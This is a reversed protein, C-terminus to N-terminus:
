DRADGKVAENGKPSSSCSRGVPQEPSEEADTTKGAHIEAGPGLLMDGLLDDGRQETEDYQKQCDGIDGGIETGSRM